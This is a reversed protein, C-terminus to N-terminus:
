RDDDDRRYNQRERREQQWYRRARERQWREQQEYRRRAEWNRQQYYYDQRPDQAYYGNYGSQYQDGYRYSDDDDRDYGGSGFSLTIGGYSQASAIPVLAVSATAVAAAVLLKCIM